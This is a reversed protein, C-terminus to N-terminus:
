NDDDDDDGDGLKEWEDDDGDAYPNTVSLRRAAFDEEEDEAQPEDSAAPKSNGKRPQLPSTDSAKLKSIGKTGRGIFVEHTDDEDGAAQGESTGWDELFPLFTIIATIDDRYNGEERRWREASEKVLLECADSAHNKTAVLEAAEQSGIFEWVGDSAVIVFLDGDSSGDKPPKLVYRKVEPDPIVGVKKCEGDGISRSMALGLRGNAWVRSPRGGPGGATVVGGAAEIRAREEPLDPKHDDSLDTAVIKGGVRSAKIARSDGSCAVWLEEGKMYLVNSTTGMSMATQGLEGGLLLQDLKCINRELCSVPDAILADHDKELLEPLQTTCFESAKEGKSGHGDFVCLLAENLSGHFPWCVVGRDQNIKANSIGRPGPMVGHRTKTGIHAKDFPASSRRASKTASGRTDREVEKAQYRVSLRNNKVEEKDEDNLMSASAMKKIPAPDSTPTAGSSVTMANQQGADSSACCGMNVPAEGRSL